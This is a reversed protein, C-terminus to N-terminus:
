QGVIQGRRKGRLNREIYMYNEVNNNLEAEPTVYPFIRLQKCLFYLYIFRLSIAQTIM